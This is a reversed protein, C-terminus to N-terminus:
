CRQGAHQSCRWVCDIGGLFNQVPDLASCADRPWYWKSVGTFSAPDGKDQDYTKFGKDAYRAPVRANKLREEVPRNRWYRDSRWEAM